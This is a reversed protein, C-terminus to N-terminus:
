AHAWVGELLSLGEDKGRFRAEIRRAQALLTLTLSFNYSRLLELPEPAKFAALTQEEWLDAYLSEELNKPSVGLREAARMLTWFRQDDTTIPEKGAEEFVVRRAEEPDVLARAQFTCYEELISALGRM